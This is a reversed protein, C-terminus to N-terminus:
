KENQQKISENLSSIFDQLQKETTFQEKIVNWYTYGGTIWVKVKLNPLCECYAVYCTNVFKNGFRIFRNSM